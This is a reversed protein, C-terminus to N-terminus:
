THALAYGALILSLLAGILYIPLRATPRPPQPAKRVELRSRVSKTHPKATPPRNRMGFPQPM